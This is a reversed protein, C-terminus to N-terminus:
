EDKVKDKIKEDSEKIDMSFKYAIVTYSPIKDLIEKKVIVKM